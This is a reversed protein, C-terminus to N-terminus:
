LQAVEDWGAEILEDMCLNVDKDGEIHKQLITLAPRTYWSMDNYLASAAQGEAKLKKLGRILLLGLLHSRIKACNSINFMGNMKKIQRHVNHLSYLSTSAVSFSGGISVNLHELTELDENFSLVFDGGVFSPTNYLSSLGCRDAYFNGEVTGFKYPFGKSLDQASLRVDGKVNITGDALIIFNRIKYRTCWAEIDVPRYSVNTRPGAVEVLKM